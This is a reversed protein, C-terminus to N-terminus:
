GSRSGGDEAFPDNRRHKKRAEPTYHENVFPALIAHLPLSLAVSDVQEGGDMMRAAQNYSLTVIVPRAPPAKGDDFQRWMVFARPQPATINLFYGEAESQDLEVVQQPFLWQAGEASDHLLRPPGPTPPPGRFPPGVAIVTAPQWQESAWRNDLRVCEMVVDVPIRTVPMAKAGAVEKGLPVGVITCRRQYFERKEYAARVEVRAGRPLELRAANMALTM